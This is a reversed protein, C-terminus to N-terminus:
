DTYTADDNSVQYADLSYRKWCFGCCVGFTVLITIFMQFFSIELLASLLSPNEPDFACLSDLVVALGKKLIVACNVGDKLGIFADYVEQFKPLM